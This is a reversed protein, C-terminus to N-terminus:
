VHVRKRQEIDTIATSARFHSSCTSQDISQLTLQAENYNKIPKEVNRAWFAWKVEELLVSCIVNVRREFLLLPAKGEAAEM